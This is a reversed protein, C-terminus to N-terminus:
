FKANQKRKLYASLDEETPISEIEGRESSSVAYALSACQAATKIDGGSKLYAAVLVAGYIERSGDEDIYTSPYEGVMRHYMGDYIFTGRDPIRIVYQKAPIREALAMAAQLFKEYESMEVGCYSYVEDADLILIEIEGLKRPDFDGRKECPQWFIPVGGKKAHMAASSMLEDTLEKQIFLADPYAAFAEEIDGDDIYLNAEPFKVTRRTKGEETLTLHLGTKAKSVTKVFRCDVGASRLLSRINKGHRDDGLATCFISDLGFAAFCLAAVIGRGGPTYSYYKGCIEQSGGPLNDMGTKLRMYSSSVTLVRKNM